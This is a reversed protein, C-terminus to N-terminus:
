SQKKKRGVLRTVPARVLLYPVVALLIAVIIAEGPYVTRFEIIQYVVDLILGVVFVKGIDKWGQHLLDRRNDPDFALAWFYPPKNERADRLGARIALICAVLPQIILRLKMPGETRGILDELVRTFFDHMTIGEIM